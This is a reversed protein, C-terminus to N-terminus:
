LCSGASSPLFEWNTGALSHTRCPAPAGKSSTRPIEAPETSCQPFAATPSLQPSCSYNLCKTLEGSFFLLCLKPLGTQLSSPAQKHRQSSSNRTVSVSWAQAAFSILFYFYKRKKREEKRGSYSLVKNHEKRCGTCLEWVASCGPITDSGADRWFLCPWLSGAGLWPCACSVPACNGCSVLWTFGQGAVRVLSSVLCLLGQSRRPPTMGGALTPFSKCFSIPLHKQSPFFPSSM